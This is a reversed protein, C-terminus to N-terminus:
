ERWRPPGHSAGPGYGLFLFLPSSSGRLERKDSPLLRGETHGKDIAAATTADLRFLFAM